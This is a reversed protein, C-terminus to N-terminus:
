HVQKLIDHASGWRYILADLSFPYPEGNALAICGELSALMLKSDPDRVNEQWSQKNRRLLHYAAYRRTTDPHRKLTCRVLAHFDASSFPRPKANLDIIAPQAGAPAALALSTIAAIALLRSM